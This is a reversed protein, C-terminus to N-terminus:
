SAGVHNEQNQIDLSFNDMDQLCGILFKRKSIRFVLTHHTKEGYSVYM